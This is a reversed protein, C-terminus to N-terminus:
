KRQALIAETLRVAQVTAAVEHARIIGVGAQVALSACALAGPLRETEAGAFRALFSKRSVGLLVPRDLRGFRELAGLLKLNHELTKGFGIGVDLIIQEWGVGCGDLQKLRGAFFAGVEGVVDTYVPNAQMTLPTGRSHMCVYAAGTEAAVQWLEPTSREGGVDNIISAGAAVAARAVGPKATDISLPVALRAALQELVPLVRRREEAEPVPQAGPRTSEGGVDIIGAGEAVLQEAHAVAAAPSLFQGGDSFSDPTVNVIGMVLAPRPFQFEFQRARLVM